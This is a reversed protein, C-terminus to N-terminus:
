TNFKVIGFPSAPSAPEPPSTSKVPYAFNAPAVKVPLILEGITDAVLYKSVGVKTPSPSSLM